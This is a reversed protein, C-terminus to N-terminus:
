LYTCIYSAQAETGRFITNWISCRENLIYDGVLQAKGSQCQSDADKDAEQKAIQTSYAVVDLSVCGISEGSGPSGPGHGRGVVMQGGEFLVRTTHAFASITIM